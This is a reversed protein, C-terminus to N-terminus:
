KLKNIILEIKNLLLKKTKISDEQTSYKRKKKLEDQLKLAETIHKKM